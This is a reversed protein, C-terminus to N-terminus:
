LFCLCDYRCASGSRCRGCTACRRLTHPIRSMTVLLRTVTVTKKVM